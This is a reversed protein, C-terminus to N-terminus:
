PLPCFNNWDTNDWESLFASRVSSILFLFAEQTTQLTGSDVKIRLIELSANCFLLLLQKVM